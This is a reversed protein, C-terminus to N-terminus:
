LERDYTETKLDFMGSYRALLAKWKPQGDTPSVHDYCQIAYLKASFLTPSLDIRYPQPERGYGGSVIKDPWRTAIEDHLGVHHLHGYEGVGNHTVIRDYRDLALLDARKMPESASPETLPILIGIAGLVECADFFKLARLPDAKPISCCYITWDGPNSLILGAFWMAEDDPHAVVLAWKKM